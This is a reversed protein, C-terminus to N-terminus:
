FPCGAVEYECFRQYQLDEDWIVRFDNLGDREEQAYRVERYWDLEDPSKIGRVIGLETAREITRDFLKKSENQLFEACLSLAEVENKIIGKTVALASSLCGVAQKVLSAGTCRLDKNYRKAVPKKRNPLSPFYQKFREVVESWLESVKQTNEHGRHKQEELLRFWDHTLYEVLANEKELLDVMTNIEFLNLADRKLRFEIRTLEEPVERRLENVTVKRRFEANLERDEYSM